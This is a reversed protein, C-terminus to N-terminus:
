GVYTYTDPRDDDKKLYERDILGDICEKVVKDSPTFLGSLKNTVEALLDEHKLEKKAKMIRVIAAQISFRREDEIKEQDPMQEAEDKNELLGKLDVRVKKNSYDQSLTVLTDPKLDETEKSPWDELCVLIESRLLSRVVGKLTDMDIGTEEQLQQVTFSDVLNYLLLVAMQYTSVELTYPEAFTNMVVEGCSQNYLWQLKRGTHRGYYFVTFTHVANELEEPLQFSMPEHFPWSGSTLVLINFDVSLAEESSLVFENFEENLGKNVKIDQLMRQLARVYDPGCAVNLRTIMSAEADDSASTHDVLRRALLKAYFKQFVDKDKIYKFLVMVQGLLDELDSGEPIKATKVLLSDCYRALLEPSKRPSNSLDTVANSNVFSVCAKELADAFASNNNFTETVQKKCKCNVELMVSFYSKPDVSGEKALNKVASLGKERVYEEFVTRLDGLGGEVLTVLRFMRKLDEAKNEYLLKEFEALLRKRHDHILARHCHSALPKSTTDHLYRGVRQEEEALRQEVKKMYDTVPNCNLFSESENKYFRYTDLLFSSEFAAGYETLNDVNSSADENLGLEVYSFVVQRVFEGDISGGNREVEILKLLATTLDAWVTRFVCDRWCLVALQYADYVNKRGEHRQREVWRLNFYLFIQSLGVSSRKYDEWEKIYCRLIDGSKLETGDGFRTLLYHRLFEKLRDYLEHGMSRHTGLQWRPDGMGSNDVSICYDYVTKYLDKYVDPSREGLDNNYLDEIGKSLKLWLKDLYARQQGSNPGGSPPQADDSAM